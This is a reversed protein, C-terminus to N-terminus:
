KWDGQLTFGAWFYPSRFRPIQRMEMKTQKLAAVSSLKKQLLNQYFRRMFEATAADDVKWLSAVVRKAGAYMFGRTLGILGEGKVDKGLGTQCASLVVLDSNLDLNYIQNLSLFGDRPKGTKDYLSLVLGSSEPHVTDLLGHTAFHLIRYDALDASTANERSADFDINLDTKNPETFASINKAEVRSFLLRPLTEGFNFDRLAKGIGSPKENQRVNKSLASLRTDDAEFIPDAFIALTNTPPKAQNENQRLEALVSASPLIIIENMEVLLSQTKLKSNQIKLADFPVFQLFGDAVIALRKNEIEFAVPALLKQGLVASLEGARNEKTKDRSVIADYFERATKEVQDRKPLLYIKLTNKSVLWLYSRQDGLKYELLVTEDDLLNQIAKVDLTAGQTLDAYRPNNRRIKVQLDELETTLSNIEGIIAALTEPKANQALAATRRRYQLNLKEQANQAQEILKPDVGQQINVRAERLLETFSRARARESTEFALAIDAPNKDREFRAQLLDIYLEYYRFVSALYTARLEPSVIENRTLEVLALGNSVTEVAKDLNGREREALALGYASEAEVRRDGLQKALQNSQEYFSLAKILDGLARYSTALNRLTIAEGTKDKLERRIILAQELYEIAKAHNASRAFVQGLNNLTNAEGRRDKVLRRLVISQRYLEEAKTLDGNLLYCGGLNNLVIAEGRKDSTERQIDLAQMLYSIGKEYDGLEKYEVGLNNLASGEHERNKLERALNLGRETMEISKQLEGIQRLIDGGEVLAVIEWTRDKKVKSLEIIQLYNDVAKQREERTPKLRLTEAEDALNKIKLAAENIQFDEAITPRIEVLKIIYRAANSKSDVPEVAIKYEGADAATVLILDNGMMGTPSNTEIFKEGSPKFATLALDTGQQEIEVRATQNAGIGVTYYHTEGGKIERIAPQNLILSQIAPTQAFTLGSMIVLLICCVFTHTSLRFKIRM